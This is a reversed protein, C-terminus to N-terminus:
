ATGAKREFEQIEALQDKRMQEAMVKLDARKAKPLYEDILTVARRHHAVVNRYFEAAYAQGSNRLLSGIMAQDIPMVKPEYSDKWNAELMKVMQELERDQKADLIRADAQSQATGRGGQLMGEHAMAILGKHHDSMMRLFDRDPDGTMAMGALDHGAAVTTPDAAPSKSEDAKPGCAGALLLLAIAALSAFRDGPVATRSSLM